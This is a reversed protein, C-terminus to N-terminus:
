PREMVISKLLPREACKITWTEMPKTATHTSERPQKAEDYLYTVKVPAFAGNPEAYDADLRLDFLGLTNRQSGTLRVLASRSNAPVDSLALSASHGPTPGKLQGMSKWTQGNDFSAEVAFADTAGRARFHAGLRLRRLDGPTSIPITLQGAGGDLFFNEKLGKTTVHFDALTLQKGKNKADLSGEVTVTGEAPGASFTITNDGKDLAPLVRQSHQIDHTLTLADISTGAGSLTFRIRYDYRRYVYPKLEVTHHGGTNRTTVDKWDLGNNDSVAVLVSGGGPNRFSLKVMGSLYVYSSPMRITLIGPKTADEVKVSSPALNTAELAGGRYTASTVPVVYEHTGNGIRGPALDGDKASYRLIDNKPDLAGPNGGGGEMNIHLGKNSWNRVIREGARLQHNVRYGSASGYEYVFLKSPDAYEQVTSYWGHTAAPLWGNNDYAPCSKLLEPGKRWGGNRMFERLAKDNGKLHPNRKLWESVAQGIEVVSAPSGDEKPFYTVLSADLMHWAGDFHVEPVSHAIIGYGRSQLGAHRALAQINASACCCQGYGYVNFSKIPDHPHAEAGLYENPPTDQHRFMVTTRWAAMAKEKDTMNPRIFSQSWAEMSSVDQVKDSLVKVNSVVGVDAARASFPILAVAASLVLRHVNSLM